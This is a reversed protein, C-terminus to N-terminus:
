PHAATAQLQHLPQFFGLPKWLWPQQAFSTRTLVTGPCSDAILPSLRNAPSPTEFLHGGHESQITPSVLGADRCTGPWFNPHWARDARHRMPPRDTAQANVYFYQPGTQWSTRV